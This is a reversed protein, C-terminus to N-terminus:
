EDPRAPARPKLMELESELARRKGQMIELVEEIEEKLAEPVEDLAELEAEIARFAPLHTDEIAQAWAQPDDESLAEHSDLMAQHAAIARGMPGHADDYRPVLAIGLGILTALIGAVLTTVKRQHTQAQKRTLAPKEGLRAMGYGVALGTFVGGLHAAIDINPVFLSMGVNIVVLILTMNRVSRVVEEPLVSRRRFTFGLFAGLVGLLAGSAGVGVAIPHWALSALSAILGSGVYILAYAPKGFIQETVRGVAWLGYANFALHIIGGHLFTCTLLRWWQGQTTQGAVNAGWTVLDSPDPNKPDVGFGVMVLWVGINLAMLTYTVWPVAAQGGKGTKSAAARARADAEQRARLAAERAVAARKDALSLVKAGDEQETVV